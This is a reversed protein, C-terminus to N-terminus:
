CRRSPAASRVPMSLGPMSFASMPRLDVECRVSPGEVKESGDVFVVNQKLRGFM